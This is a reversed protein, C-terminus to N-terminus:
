QMGGPDGFGFLKLHMGGVSPLLCLSGAETWTTSTQVM